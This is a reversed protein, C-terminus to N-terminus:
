SAFYKNNETFIYNDRIVNMFYLFLIYIICMCKYIIYMHLSIQMLYTHLLDVIM